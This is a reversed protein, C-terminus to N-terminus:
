YHFFLVFVIHIFIFIFCRVDEKKMEFERNSNIDIMGTEKMNIEGGTEVIAEVM